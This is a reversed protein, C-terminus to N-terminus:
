KESCFQSLSGTSFILISLDLFLGLPNMSQEENSEMKALFNDLQTCKTSPLINEAYMKAPIALDFPQLAMIMRQKRKVQQITYFRHVFFFYSAYTPPYFLFSFSFFFADRFESVYDLFHWLTLMSDTAQVTHEIAITCRMETVFKGSKKNNNNDNYHLQIWVSYPSRYLYLPM